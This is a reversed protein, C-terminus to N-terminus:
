PDSKPLAAVFFYLVLANAVGVTGLIALWTLIDVVRRPGISPEGAFPALLIGVAVVVGAAFGDLSVRRIRGPRKSRSWSFYVPVRRYVAIACLAVLPVFWLFGAPPPHDAGAYLISIWIAFCALAIVARRRSSM